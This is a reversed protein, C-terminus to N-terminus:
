KKARLSHFYVEHLRELEFDGIDAISLINGGTTGLETLVSQKEKAMTKLVPLDESAIEVLLAPKESFWNELSLTTTIQAGINGRAAMKLLTAALGGEAIIAASLLRNGAVLTLETISRIEQLDLDFGTNGLQNNMLRAAESGALENGLQGLVVLHNGAAAFTNRRPLINEGMKALCSIIASASISGHESCNYLSVNGSVFPTDLIKAAEAVGEIGTKFQWMQAPDEPNGYNLCDTLSLPEAGVAVTKLIAQVVALKGQLQPSIRGIRAPGAVSVVACLNQEIEPLDAFDRLPTFVVAETEDRTLLTNGQVTQDYTETFPRLSAINESALLQWFFDQKDFDTPMQFNQQENKQEAFPRDVVIGETIDTAKAHCVDEGQYRAIYIGDHTVKGIRSARAGTMVNPFDWRENFHELLMETLDPPVAFCFREQTEACLIVAAPLGAEAVHIKAVDIEAGFGKEAVLEVTACLNGGAGLDKFAIRGLDGSQELREFLDYFSAFLHRELFPNPEQVAGKNKEQDSEKLNASAFSAGGFGSRDTPKGVLVFEYGDDAANDPAYSHILNKWKLVGLAVVNVLCNNNFTEEFFADGGLNPVGLPNGYGGVGAVVGAAIRKTEPRNIDGFRLADLAGIVRGGMCAIDRCIGGVGTAAGEFPVVQSPHNHSEHAYVIGYTEGTTKSEHFKVVGADEGPGMLVHKGTTPLLRLYKRSSKYSSHESGQIGWITAETLTPNRGLLAAVQRGEDPTLAVLNDAFINAITDDDKDIISLIPELHGYFLAQLIGSLLM